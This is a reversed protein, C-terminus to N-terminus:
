DIDEVKERWLASILGAVRPNKFNKILNLDKPYGIFPDITKEGTNVVWIRLGSKKAQESFKKFFRIFKEPTRETKVVVSYNRGESFDKHFEFDVFVDDITSFFVYNTLGKRRYKKLVFGESDYGSFFTDVVDMMSELSDLFVKSEHKLELAHVIDEKEPKFTHIHYLTDDGIVIKESYHKSHVSIPSDLLSDRVDKFIKEFQTQTIEHAFERKSFLIARFLKAKIEEESVINGIIKSINRLISGYEEDGKICYGM